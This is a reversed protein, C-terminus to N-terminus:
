QGFSCNIQFGVDHDDTVWKMPEVKATERKALARFKEDGTYDYVLWLTGPFFGSCWWKPRAKILKTGDFSRPTHLSDLAQAMQECQQAALSFVRDAVENMIEKRENGCLLSVLALSLTILYTHAM